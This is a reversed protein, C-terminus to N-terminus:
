QFERKKQINDQQNIFQPAQTHRAFPTKIHRGLYVCKETKFSLKHRKEKEVYTLAECGFIRIHSIDPPKGCTHQYPTYRGPLVTRNQLNVGHSLAHEWYDLPDLGSMYLLSRTKGMVIDM